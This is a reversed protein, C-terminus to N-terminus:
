KQIEHKLVTVQVLKYIMYINYDCDSKISSDNSHFKCYCTAHSRFLIDSLTLTSHNIEEIGSRLRRSYWTVVCNLKVSRMDRSLTRLYAKVPLIIIYVMNWIYTYHKKNTVRSRTFVNSYASMFYKTQKLKRKMSSISHLTLSNGETTGVFYCVRVTDKKYQDDSLLTM